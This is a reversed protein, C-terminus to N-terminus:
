GNLREVLSQLQPNSSGYSVIRVDLGANRVRPTCTLAREIAHLIWSPDNGFAGGGLLTLYVRPNGTRQQNVMAAHITAEYAANLIMPAFPEWLEARLRSYAVPLASCFAQSVHNDGGITVAADSQVGIRLSGMLSDISQDSKQQLENCIAKLGERTPLAYGNQMTWNAGAPNLVPELDQLGNIQRDATQGQKGDVVAFYNRYMTAAGCAIACAPGQTRDFEYRTIGHEPTVGPGTMELLNFQSAVQFLAGHNEPDQHLKQVDGVVESVRNPTDPSIDATQGRLEQLSPISLTGCRFQKGDKRRLLTGQPEFLYRSRIDDGNTEDEGFLRRYWTM